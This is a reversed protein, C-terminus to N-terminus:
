HVTQGETTPEGVYEVGEAEITDGQNLLVAIPDCFEDGDDDTEGTDLWVVIRRKGNVLAPELRVPSEEGEQAAGIAKALGEFQECEDDSPEEMSLAATTPNLQVVKGDSM